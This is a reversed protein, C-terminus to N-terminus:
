PKAKKQRIRKNIDLLKPNNDLLKIVDKLEIPIGKYLKEYIIRILKLDEDTDVTLRYTKKMWEKAQLRETKFEQLNELIYEDVHERHHPQRGNEWSKKLSSFTFIEAGIGLPLGVDINHVYDSKTREQLELMLDIQVPEVLPCDGTVRIIIDAGFKLAAQYYRDLVDMESGRFCQYSNKNCLEEAKNDDKSISTAVVIEDVNKCTKVREVIHQLMPKGSIEMLIKGPLRSSGMRAQIICARKM